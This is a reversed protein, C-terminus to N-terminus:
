RTNWCWPQLLAKGWFFIGLLLKEQESVLLGQNCIQLILQHTRFSVICSLVPLIKHHHSCCKHLIRVLFPISQSCGIGLINMVFRSINRLHIGSFITDSSRFTPISWYDASSFHVTGRKTAFWCWTKVQFLLVVFTVLFCIDILLSIRMEIMFSSAEGKWMFVTYLTNYSSVSSPHDFNM